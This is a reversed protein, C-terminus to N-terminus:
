QTGGWIQCRGYYSKAGKDKCSPCPTRPEGKTKKTFKIGCKQCKWVYAKRPQKLIGIKTGKVLLIYKNIEKDLDEDSIPAIRRGFPNDTRSLHKYQLYAKWLTRLIDNLQEATRFELGEIMACNRSASIEYSPVETQWRVVMRDQITPTDKRSFRNM